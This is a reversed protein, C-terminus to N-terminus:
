SQQLLYEQLGNSLLIGKKVRFPHLIKHLAEQYYMPCKAMTTSRNEVTVKQGSCFRYRGPLEPMKERTQIYMHLVADSQCHPLIFRVWEQLLRPDLYNPLDWLMLLDLNAKETRRFAICAALEQLIEDEQTEENIPIAMLRESCAPLFLKCHVRSFYDLQQQNAPAIDFIEYYREDNWNNLLDFLLPSNMAYGTQPPALHEAVSSILM